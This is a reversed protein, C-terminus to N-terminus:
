KDELKKIRKDIDSLSALMPGGLKNYDIRKVGNEDESVAQPAVQELDQAMIGVQPGEGHAKPDKYDYEYGDLHKLFEASDLPSINEKVREDSFAAGAVIMDGILQQNAGRAREKNEAISQNVGAKAGQLGMQNSFNQQKRTNENYMQANNRTAVNQNAVNQTNQANMQQANNKTAVNRSQVQQQNQTNFRSIADQNQAVNAKRAYDQQEMDGAMQGSQMLAQLARQEAQARIQLDTDAQRNAGSQANLQRSVLENGGGSMGRTALNQMIADSNGKLNRNIESEAQSRRSLDTLSEEGSGIGQLKRLADMQAQKMAPDTSIGEMASPGLSSATEMEPNLRVVEQYLEPNIEKLEPLSIDGYWDLADQLEQSGGSGFINIM